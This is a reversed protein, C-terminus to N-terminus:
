AAKADPAEDQPPRDERERQARQASEIVARLAARLQQLEAAPPAAQATM